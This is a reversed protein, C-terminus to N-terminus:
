LGHVIDGFPRIRRIRGRRTRTVQYTSQSTSISTARTKLRGRRRPPNPNDTPRRLYTTPPTSTRPVDATKRKRRGHQSAQDEALSTTGVRKSDHRAGSTADDMRGRRGGRQNGDGDSQRERDDAVGGSEDREGPDGGPGRDRGPPNADVVRENRDGMPQTGDYGAGDVVRQRDLGAEIVRLAEEEGRHGGPGTDQSSANTGGGVDSTDGMPGEQYTQLDGPVVTKGGPEDPEDPAMGPSDEEVKRELRERQHESANWLKTPQNGNVEVSESATSADAEDGPADLEDLAGEPSNVEDKQELPEDVRESANELNKPRKGDDEVLSSVGTADADDSTPGDDCSPYRRREGELEVGPPENQPRTPQDPPLAPPPPEPSTGPVDVVNAENRQDNEEDTTMSRAYERARDGEGEVSTGRRTGASEVEVEADRRTEAVEGDVEAGADKHAAREIREAETEGGPEVQVDTPGGSEGRLEDPSADPRESEKDDDDGDDGPDEISRSAKSVATEVEEVRAGEVEDHPVDPKMPRCSEDRNKGTGGASETSAESVATKVRAEGDRGGTGEPINPLETPADPRREDDGTTDEPDRSPRTPNTEPATPKHHRREGTWDM